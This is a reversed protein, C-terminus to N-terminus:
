EPSEHPRRTAGCGAAWPTWPIGGSPAARAGRKGTKGTAPDRQAGDGDVDTLDLELPTNSLHPIRMRAGAGVSGRWVFGRVATPM